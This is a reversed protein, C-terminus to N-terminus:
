RARSTLPWPCGTRRGSPGASPACAAAQFAAARRTLRSSEGFRHRVQRRPAPDGAAEFPWTPPSSASSCPAPGCRQHRRTSARAPGTPRAPRCGPRPWRCTCWRGTPRHAPHERVRLKGDVQEVDDPQRVLSEAVDAAARGALLVPAAALGAARFVADPDPCCRLRSSRRGPWAPLSTSVSSASACPWRIAM